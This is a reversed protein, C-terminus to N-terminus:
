KDPNVKNKVRINNDTDPKKKSIYIAINETQKM